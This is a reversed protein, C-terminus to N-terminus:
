IICRGAANDLAQAVKEALEELSGDNIITLDWPAGALEHDLIAHPNCVLNSRQIKWMRAGLASFAGFEVDTRVDSVVALDPQDSRIRDLLANVWTAPGLIKRGGEGVLVWIQVPTLGLPEILKHRDERQWNYYEEGPIGLIESALEKVPTALAYQRAGPHARCIARAAADKGAGSEHGLCIMPPLPPTVADGGRGPPRDPGGPPPPTDHAEESREPAAPPGTDPRPPSASSGFAAPSEADLRPPSTSSGFEVLPEAIPRHPSATDPKVGPKLRRIAERIFGASVLARMDRMVLQKRTLESQSM